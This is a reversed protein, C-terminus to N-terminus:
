QVIVFLGSRCELKVDEGDAYLRYTRSKKASEVVPVGEIGGKAKAITVAGRNSHFASENEFSLKAGEPFVLKGNTRLLVATENLGEGDLVLNGVTCDHDGFDISGGQVSLSSFAVDSDYALIGDGTKVFPKTWLGTGGTVTTPGIMQCGPLEYPNVQDEFAIGAHYMVADGGDKPLAGNTALHLTSNSQLRVGGAFTNNANTLRLNVNTRATGDVVDLANYFGGSGTIVNSFVVWANCYGNGVALGTSDDLELPGGWVPTTKTKMDFSQFFTHNTMVLTWVSSAPSGGYIQYSNAGVRVLRNAPSGANFSASATTTVLRVSSGLVINGPNSAVLMGLNMEGGVKLVSLTHGQFDVTGLAPEHYASGAATLEEDIGFTADGTLTLPVGGLYRKWTDLGSQSSVTWGSCKPQWIHIALGSHGAAGTGEVFIQGSQRLDLTQTRGDPSFTAGDKIYLRATKGGIGNAADTYYTGAEVVIDGGFASIDSTVKLTGAGTKVITGSAGGAEIVGNLGGSVQTPATDDPSVYKLFTADALNVEGEVTTVFKPYAVGDIVTVFQGGNRCVVTGDGTKAGTLSVKVGDVVVLAGDEVFLAALTVGVTAFRLTGAAVEVAAINGGSVITAEGDDSSKIVRAIPAGVKTLDVSGSGVYVDVKGDDRNRVIMGGNVATYIVGDEIDLKAPDDVLAAANFACGDAALTVGSKVTLTGFKPVSQLALTGEEVTLNDFATTNRVTLTGSGVKSFAYSVGGVIKGKGADLVGDGDGAGFTIQPTNNVSNSLISYNAFVLGNVHIDKGNLDLLTQKDGDAGSGPGITVDGFGAGYAFYDTSSLVYRKRDALKFGGTHEWIVRTKDLNATPRPGDGGGFFVAGAGVTRVTGAGSNKLGGGTAARIEIDKGGVSELVIEAGAVPSLSVGTGLRWLAGGDFLIRAKVATSNNYIYSGAFCSNKGLNLIDMVGNGPDQVSADLTVTADWSGFTGSYGDYEAGMGNGWDFRGTGWGYSKANRGHLTITGGKGGNAGIKAALKTVYGGIYNGLANTVTFNAPTEATADNGIALMASGELATNTVTTGDVKFDGNVIVNRLVRQPEDYTLATGAPVIVDKSHEGVNLELPEDGRIVICAGGNLCEVTAGEERVLRMVFLRVGDVQLKAGARVTLDALTVDKGSGIKFTGEKVDIANRVNATNTITLTGTGAKAFSIGAPAVVATGLDLAGDTNGAGFTVVSATASENTLITNAYMKLGNLKVNHGHLDLFAGTTPSTGNNGPGVTVSGTQPGYPLADDAFVRYYKAANATVHGLHTDGTHNWVINQTFRVDPKSNDGRLFYVDCNGETVLQVNGDTLSVMGGQHTIKIDNGNVGVLRFKAGQVGQFRTAGTNSVFYEGGDFILRADVAANYNYFERITLYGYRGIRAIDVVTNGAADTKSSTLKASVVATAYGGFTGWETWSPVKDTSSSVDICGGAGGDGGFTIQKGNTLRYQAGNKITLAVPTAVTAGIKLASTNKLVVASGDLTLDAEVDVTGYGDASPLNDGNFTLPTAVSLDEATAVGAAFVAFALILNKM